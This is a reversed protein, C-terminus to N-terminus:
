LDPASTYVWRKFFPWLNKVSVYEMAARLDETRAGPGIPFASEKAHSVYYRLGKWFTADGLEARLKHLVLAGRSYTVGRPPLDSERPPTRPTRSTRSTRPAADPSSLSLPADKTQEHVKASRKRWLLVERDYAEREWRHEKLLAVMFTAFGENLWFDAFDACPVLWAFWQHALEHAFIWDETPNKALDDLAKEGIVSIGAGEQAAEGEVFVEIYEETPFEAGTHTRLFRLMSATTLLATELDKKRPGLARLVVGDVLQEAEEFRGAAFAYLFPPSSRDLVFSHLTLGARLTTRAVVRGSAAVRLDSPANIRLALTARQAPDQLTPMWAATSYGAWVQNARFAPIPKSASVSWAMKVAISEGEALVSSLEICLRGDHLEFYLSEAGVVVSTVFLDVADFALWSTDHRARVALVGSGTISATPGLRVDLDISHSLVDVPNDRTCDGARPAHEARAVPGTPNPPPRISVVAVRAPHRQCAWASSAFVVFTIVKLFTHNRVVQVRIKMKLSRLPKM